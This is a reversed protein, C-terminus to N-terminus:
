VLAHDLITLFVFGIVIHVQLVSDDLMRNLDSAQKWWVATREKLRVCCQRGRRLEANACLVSQCESPMRMDDVSWTSAGDRSVRDSVHGFLRKPPIARHWGGILLMRLLLSGLDQRHLLSHWQGDIPFTGWPHRLV